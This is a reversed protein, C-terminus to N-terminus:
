IHILSLDLPPPSDKGIGIAKLSFGPILSFRRTHKEQSTQSGSISGSRKRGLALSFSRRSPKSDVSPRPEDAGPMANNMSIPPYRKPKESNQQPDGRKRNKGFISGSRGFIKGSIEGITNSRKHGKGEHGEAGAAVAAARGFKSASISPRGYESDRPEPSAPGSAGYNGPSAKPQQIRGHVNTDAVEPPLPQGYSARAGAGMGVSGTSKM